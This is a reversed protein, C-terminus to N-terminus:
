LPFVHKRTGLRSGTATTEVTTEQGRCGQDRYGCQGQGGTSTASEVFTAPSDLAGLGGILADHDLRIRRVTGVVHHAGGHGLETVHDGLCGVTLQGELVEEGIGQDLLGLYGGAE